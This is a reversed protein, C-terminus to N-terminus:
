QENFRFYTIDYKVAVSRRVSSLPNVKMVIVQLQTKKEAKLCIIVFATVVVLQLIMTWVVDTCLAYNLGGAVYFRLGGYLLINSQGVKYFFDFFNDFGPVYSIILVLQFYCVVPIKWSIHLLIPTLVNMKYFSSRAMGAIVLMVVSPGILTSILLLAQYLMFLKSVSPNNSTAIYWKRVILLQNAITSPIWRRRQNFFEDFDEPCYTSNEAM